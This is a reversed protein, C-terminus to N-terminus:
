PITEPSSRRTLKTSTTLSLKRNIVTNLQLSPYYKKNMKNLLNFINRLIKNGEQVVEWFYTMA